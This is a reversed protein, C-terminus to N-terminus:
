QAWKMVRNNIVEAVYVNSNADVFIHYPLSLGTLAPTKARNGNGAVMTIGPRQTVTIVQNSVGSGSITIPATRTNSDGYNVTATAIITANDKGSASSLTLWNQDSAASCATPLLIAFFFFVPFNLSFM